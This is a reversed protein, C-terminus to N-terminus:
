LEYILYSSKIALARTKSWIAYTLITAKALPCRSIIGKNWALSEYSQQTGEAKIRSWPADFLSAQTSLVGICGTKTMHLLAQTSVPYPSNCDVRTDFWCRSAHSLENLPSCTETWLRLMGGCIVIRKTKGRFCLDCNRGSGHRGSILDGICSLLIKSGYRFNPEHNNLIRWQVARLAKEGM